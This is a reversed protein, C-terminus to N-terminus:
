VEDTLVFEVSLASLAKKEGTATCRAFSLDTRHAPPLAKKM